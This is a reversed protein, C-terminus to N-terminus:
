ICPDGILGELRRSFLVRESVYQFLEALIYSLEPESKRLVVLPVCDPGSTKSSDLKTIIEKVM